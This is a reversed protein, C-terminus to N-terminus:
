AYAGAQMRAMMTSVSLQGTTTNMFEAPLGGGFAPLPRQLWRAVWSLADFGASDGSEGVMVQIQGVLRLLGLVLASDVASLPKTDRARRNVSAPSLGLMEMLCSKTAAMRKAVMAVSKAPIGVEVIRGQEIPDARYLTLFDMVQYNVASNGTCTEARRVKTGNVM